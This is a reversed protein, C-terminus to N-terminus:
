PLSGPPPLARQEPTFGGPNATPHGPQSSFDRPSPRDGQPPRENPRPPRGGGQPPRGDGQPPRGDWKPPRIDGKPPRIGPFNPRDGQGPPFWPVHVEPVIGYPLEEAQTDNAAPRPPTQMIIDNTEETESSSQGRGDLRMGQSGIEMSIAAYAANAPLIAALFLLVCLRYVSNSGTNNM